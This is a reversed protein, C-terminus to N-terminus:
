LNGMHIDGSRRVGALFTDTPNDIPSGRQKRHHQNGDAERAELRRSRRHLPGREPDVHDLATGQQSLHPAGARQHRLLDAPNRRRGLPPDVPNQEVRARRHSGVAHNQLEDIWLQILLELIGRQLDLGGFRRQQVQPDLGLVIVQLLFGRGGINGGLM